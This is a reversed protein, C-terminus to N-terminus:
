RTQTNPLSHYSRGLAINVINALIDHSYDQLAATKRYHILNGRDSLRAPDHEDARARVDRRGNRTESNIPSRSSSRCSWGWALM